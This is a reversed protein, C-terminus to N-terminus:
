KFNGGQIKNILQYLMRIEATMKSEILKGVVKQGKRKDAYKLAKQVLESNCIDLILKDKEKKPLDGKCSIQKLNTLVLKMYLTGFRKKQKENDSFGECYRLAHKYFESVSAFYGSTYKTILSGSTKVFYTYYMQNNIVIKKAYKFMKSAFIIDEYIPFTQDFELKNEKLFSLRYLKNWPANFVENDMTPILMNRFYDENTGVYISDMKNEKKIKEDVLYYWFCFLVVDAKHEEALKVNDEIVHDTVADDVDFYVIYDGEAVRTGSNRAGSLGRNEQHVVKIREDSAAYRDLMAASDDTSGDDVLIFETNKYTQALLGKVCDDIYKQGNYIAVVISVKPNNM